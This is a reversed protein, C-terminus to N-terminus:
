KLLKRFLLLRRLFKKKLSAFFNVKKILKGIFWQVTPEPRSGVSTCNVLVNEVDLEDLVTFTSEGEPYTPMTVDEPPVQIMM